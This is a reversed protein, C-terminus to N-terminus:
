RDYYVTMTPQGDGPDPRFVIDFVEAGDISEISDAVRRLLAPVDTSGPGAPNAQSFHYMSYEPIEAM